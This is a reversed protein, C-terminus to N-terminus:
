VKLVSVLAQFESQLRKEEARGRPHHAHCLTIGNNVQYRLESYDKWNLIHHAELRGDCSENAIRCKWGDRNKVARMWERYKGDLHKSESKVLLSRDSIWKYHNEGQLSPKPGTKPFDPRKKGLWPKPVRADQEATLGKNWPGKLKTNAILYKANANHGTIFRRYEGKKYGLHTITKTVMKTEKGCGCECNRM